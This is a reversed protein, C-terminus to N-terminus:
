THDPARQAAAPRPPIQAFPAVGCAVDLNGVCAPGTVNMAPAAMLGVAMEDFVPLDVADVIAQAAFTWKNKQAMSGSRQLLFLIVSPSEALDFTQQVCAPADSVSADPGNAQDSSCSLLLLALVTGEAAAGARM